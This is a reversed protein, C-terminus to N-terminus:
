GLGAAMDLLENQNQVDRAASTAVALVKEVKHQDILARYRTLCERMRELAEPHFRRSQHVGQGLKTVTTEDCIVREVRGNKVEAILVLTTNSGLDLAAVRM